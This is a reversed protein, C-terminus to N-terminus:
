QLTAGCTPCDTRTAPNPARCAPCTWLKAVLVGTGDNRMADANMTKRCAACEYIEMQRQWTNTATRQDLNFQTAIGLTRCFPCELTVPGVKIKRHTATTPDNKSLLRVIFLILHILDM